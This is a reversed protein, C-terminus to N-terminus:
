AAETNSTNAILSNLLLNSKIVYADNEELVKEKVLANISILVKHAEEKKDLKVLCEVVRYYTEARKLDLQLATAYGLLAYDHKQLMKCTASYGLWYDLDLPSYLTLVSFFKLANEYKDETYAEHALAYMIDLKEQPIKMADKLSIEGKQLKSAIDKQMAQVKPDNILEEIYKETDM